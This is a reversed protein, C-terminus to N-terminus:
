APRQAIYAYYNCAAFFTGDEASRRQDALWADVDRPPCWAPRPRWRGTPRPWTSCSAARDRGGRLRPGAHRDAAARGEAAPAPARAHRPALEHDDVPGRAGDGPRARPDSCGFTLSAYDGDFVAVSGGPRVVRAAEALVALPDRVHSVLTHAVAADFSAAPLDLQTRTASSSSSATASARRRRRAARRSRHVRPEPRDRDRHRRLRRARRDRAGRRRHRLRPGPRGRHAAPRDLELYAERYAMFTPDKARFELREIFRELTAADQENIFQMADRAQVQTAM